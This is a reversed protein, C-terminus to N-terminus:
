INSVNQMRHLFMIYQLSFLTFNGIYRLPQLVRISFKLKAVDDNVLTLKDGDHGEVKQSVANAQM